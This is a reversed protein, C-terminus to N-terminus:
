GPAASTAAAEGDAAGLETGCAPCAAAGADLPADCEPCRRAAPEEEPPPAPPPPPPTVAPLDWREFVLHRRFYVVTERVIAAIPLSIFAGIFGYLQGGLLLAFIVLLPNIRLAQGFVNPAVIHGELQQLATFAVILWVADLPQDSFAAIIVPPFGGIAPGVYPILEAFGYWAAFFLAYTRGEPFIGVSGLVWLLVGASTGMILSFLLQGRVYGFVAHQIRTPFDDGPTGDGRPMVSRVGAGIREGYILMYVAIVIVLILALSAEVLIRVADRTFSVLQGSGASVNEGLAQLATQGERSVQVNVGNRDLWDQFSALSATADDVIGPVSRQFTSVQDSIPSALLFGLGTVVCVLTLMVLLVSAGRPLGSRRLLAVSPNLLLAILAAIVFLLLVAGAANLVAWAGLIALPLLVLQVWRPVVVRGAARTDPAHEMAPITARVKVFM